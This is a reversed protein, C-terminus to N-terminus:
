RQVFVAVGLRPSLSSFTQLVLYAEGSHEVVFLCVLFSKKRTGLWHHHGM